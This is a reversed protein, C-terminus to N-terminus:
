VKVFGISNYSHLDNVTFIKTDTFRPNNLAAKIFEVTNTQESSKSKDLKLPFKPDTANYLTILPHGQRFTLWLFSFPGISQYTSTEKIQLYEQFGPIFLLRQLIRVSRQDMPVCEAIELSSGDSFPQTFSVPIRSITTFSAKAEFLLKVIADHGNAAAVHLMTWGNNRDMAHADAGLLLLVRVNSEQGQRAAVLMAEFVRQGSLKETIGHEITTAGVVKALIQSAAADLATRGSNDELHRNAGGEILLKVVQDHLNGAAAFLQTQGTKSGIDVMAGVDILNRVVDVQGAEAALHLATRGQNDQADFPVGNRILLVVGESHGLEAAHHLATKQNADVQQVKCVHILRKLIDIDGARCALHLAPLSAYQYFPIKFIEPKPKPDKVGLLLDFLPIHRNVIAWGLLGSYHSHISEGLPLWPHWRWSLNPQVALICFSDWGQCAKDIRRTLPAWHEKAFHFFSIVKNTTHTNKNRRPLTIHVPKSRPLALKTLFPINDRLVNFAEQNLQISQGKNVNSSQLSLAYDPSLLHAICFQGLDLEAAHLNFGNPFLEVDAPRALLFQRM